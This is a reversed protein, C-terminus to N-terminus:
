KQRMKQIFKRIPSANKITMTTGSMKSTTISAIPPMAPPALAPIAPMAIPKKAHRIGIMHKSMGIPQTTEIMTSCACAAMTSSSSPMESPRFRPHCITFDLTPGTIMIASMRPMPPPIMPTIKASGIIKVITGM